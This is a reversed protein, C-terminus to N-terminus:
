STRRCFIRTAGQAVKSSNSSGVATSSPRRCTSLSCRRQARSVRRAPARPACAGRRRRGHRHVGPRLRIRDPSYEDVTPILTETIAMRPGVRTSGLGDVMRSDSHLSHMRRRQATRSIAKRAQGPADLTLETLVIASHGCRSSFRSPANLCSPDRVRHLAVRESHPSRM